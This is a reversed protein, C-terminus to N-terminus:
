GSADSRLSPLSDTLSQLERTLARWRSVGYIRVISTQIKEWSPDVRALVQRGIQTVQVSRSRADRGRTLIVWGRRRMPQLARYFSTRDM